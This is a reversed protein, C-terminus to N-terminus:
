ALDSTELDTPSRTRRGRTKKIAQLAERDQISLGFLLLLGIYSTTVVVGAVVATQVGPRLAVVQVVALALGTSAAGAAIPKWYDLTYPHLGMTRWVQLLRLGNNVVNGSMRAVAAGILGFSPILLIALV